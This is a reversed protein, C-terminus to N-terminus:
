SGTFFDVVEEIDRCIPMSPLSAIFVRGYGRSVLRPDCLVVVGRDDADRILRGVGQKLAIVAQPLQYEMFADRGAAKM